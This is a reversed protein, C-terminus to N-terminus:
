KSFTCCFIISLFGALPIYKGKKQSIKIYLLWILCTEILSFIFFFIFNYVSLYCSIALFFLIDGLGLFHSTLDIIKKYKVSLYATLLCLVAVLFAINILSSIWIETFWQRHLRILVLAVGLSPFLWWYVSRGRMDQLFIMM